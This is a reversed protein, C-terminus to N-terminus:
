QKVEQLHKVFGSYKENYAKDSYLLNEHTKMASFVTSIRREMIKSIEQLQYRNKKLESYIAMRVRCHAHNKEKSYPDLNYYKRASAIIQEAEM